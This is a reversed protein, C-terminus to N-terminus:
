KASLFNKKLVNKIIYEDSVAKLSQIKRRKKLLKPFKFLIELDVMLGKLFMGKTALYKLTNINVLLIKIFNLDNLLLAKPFNKIVTMTMNRFNQIEVMEPNKSSSGKGIHYVISKPQYWGKFGALQARFFFDADEMYMFYDEDFLGIRKFVERKIVSGGGSALFCNGDRSYTLNDKQNHGRIILHGSVDINDGANDIVKRNGYKLIKSSVFGIEPHAVATEVLYKLCDKDLYSDNNILFIYEGISKKIGQNVAKAFGYNKGLKLFRVKPFNKLLYNETTDTSGNDVVITEFNKYSLKSLSPLCIKLFELGNWTPIIVSVKTKLM